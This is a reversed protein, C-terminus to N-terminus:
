RGGRFLAFPWWPIKKGATGRTKAEMSRISEATAFGDMEPTLCELFMM